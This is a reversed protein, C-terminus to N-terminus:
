RPPPVVAYLCLDHRAAVSSLMLVEPKLDDLPAVIQGLRTLLECADPGLVEPITEGRLEPLVVEILDVDLPQHTM